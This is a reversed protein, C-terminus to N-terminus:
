NVEIQAFSGGRAQHLCYQLLPLLVAAVVVAGAAFPLHFEDGGVRGARQVNTVATTSRHAVTDTTQQFGGTPIYGTFKIVVIGARLNVIQRQRYLRAAFTQGRVVGAPGFIAVAAIVDNLQGVAIHIAVRNLRGVLAVSASFVSIIQVGDPMEGHGIQTTLLIQIQFGEGDIEIDIEEFGRQVAIAFHFVGDLTQDSVTVGIFLTARQPQAGGIETVVFVADHAFG